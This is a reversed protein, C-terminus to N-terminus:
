LAPKLQRVFGDHDVAELREVRKAQALIANFQATTSSATPQAVTDDVSHVVEFQVNSPLPERLSVMFPSNPGIEPAMPASFIAAIWSTGPLLRALEAWANGGWPTGYTKLTVSEFHELTGRQQLLHLAKKSVLGGMSHALLTIHKDGQAQLQELADALDKANDTMSKARHDGTFGYVDSDQQELVEFWPEFYRFTNNVGGVLVIASPQGDRQVVPELVLQNAGSVTTFVALIIAFLWRM